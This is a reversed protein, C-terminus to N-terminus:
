FDSDSDIKKSRTEKRESKVTKEKRRKLKSSATPKTPVRKKKPELAKFILETLRKICIEKNEFQSRSSQSVVILHGDATLKKILKKSIILKEEDTFQNTLEIPFRLEVRSNVKNVNQGGPGSSKTALFGSEKEIIQM